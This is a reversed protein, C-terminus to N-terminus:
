KSDSYGMSFDQNPRIFGLLVLCKQKTKSTLIKGDASRLPALEM